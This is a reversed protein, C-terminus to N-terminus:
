NFFAMDGYKKVMAEVHALVADVRMVLSKTSSRIHLVEKALEPDNTLLVKLEKLKSIQSRSFRTVLPLYKKFNKSVPTKSSVSAGGNDRAFLRIEGFGPKDKDKDFRAEMNGGSFRDWQGVLMDLVLIESLDKSLRMESVTNIQGDELLAESLNMIKEKSPMPNNAMVFKALPHSSNLTNKRPSVLSSVAFKKKKLSLAGYHAKGSSINSRVKSLVKDRNQLKWKGREKNYNEILLSEFKKLSQGEVYFYDSPLVLESMKLFRGLYYSVVQGQSNAAGNENPLWYAEYEGDIIIKLGVSTSGSKYDLEVNSASLNLTEMFSSFRIDRPKTQLLSSQSAHAFLSSFFFAGLIIIKLIKM